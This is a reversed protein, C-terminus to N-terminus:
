CILSLAVLGAIRSLTSVAMFVAFTAMKRDYSDCFRSTHLNQFVQIANLQHLLASVQTYFYTAILLYM